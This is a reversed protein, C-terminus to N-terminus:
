TDCVRRHLMFSHPIFCIYISLAHLRHYVQKYVPIYLGKVFDYGQCRSVLLEKDRNIKEASSSTTCVAQIPLLSKDIDDREAAM